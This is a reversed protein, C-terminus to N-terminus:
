VNKGSYFGSNRHYILFNYALIGYGGGENWYFDFQKKGGNYVYSYYIPLLALIFM